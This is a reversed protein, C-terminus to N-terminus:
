RRSNKDCLGCGFILSILSKKRIKIKKGYEIGLMKFFRMIIPYGNQFFGRMKRFHMKKCKKKAVHRLITNPLQKFHSFMFKHFFPDNRGLRTYAECCPHHVYSYDIACQVLVIVEIVDQYWIHERVLLSVWIHDELM